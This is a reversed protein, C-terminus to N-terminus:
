LESFEISIINEKKKQLRGMGQMFVFLNSDHVSIDYEIKNICRGVHYVESSEWVTFSLLISVIINYVELNEDETDPNFDVSMKLHKM